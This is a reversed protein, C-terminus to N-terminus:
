WRILTGGYTLGGGFGVIAILDGRKLGGEAELDCLALPISAGSTNARKELNMYFRSEPLKMQDAAAQIIRANAQHPVIWKIDGLAIGADAVLGRLVEPLTRVAFMYVKRGNMELVPRRREAMKDNEYPHATGGDRVVISEWGSGDAGLRCNLIGRDPDDSLELVAAGAGDGFLVCTNRDSWDTLHTLVEVGVVLTRRAVGSLMMGKAATLSYIFGSCAAQLDFAAAQPAGLKYQVVCSTSPCGIYDGTITAVVILDIDKPTLGARELAQRSAQVALDSAAQGPAIIHRWGIGTHSRIWEDSTNVTASLEQNSVHREPLGAGISRIVVSKAM